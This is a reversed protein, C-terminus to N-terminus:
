HSSDDVDLSLVTEVGQPLVKRFKTNVDTVMFFYGPKERLMARHHLQVGGLLMSTFIIHDEFPNLPNRSDMEPPRFECEWSRDGTKRAPGTVFLERNPSQPVQVSPLGGGCLPDSDLVKPTVSGKQGIGSMFFVLSFLYIDGLCGSFMCLCIGPKGGVFCLM